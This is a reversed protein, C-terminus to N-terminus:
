PFAVRPRSFSTTDEDARLLFFAVVGAALLGAAGVTLWWFTSSDDDLEGGGDFGVAAAPDRLPLTVAGDAGHVEPDTEPRVDTAVEVRDRGRLVHPTEQSGSTALVIGGPGLLEVYYEVREAEAVTLEVEQGSSVRWPGDGTRASIRTRRALGTTDDAITAYVRVVDPTRERRSIVRPRERARSRVRIFAERIGPPVDAGFVHERDIVALQALSRELAETWGLAHQILSRYVLMRVLEDRGLDDVGEARAFAELARELNGQTYQAVGEDVVPHALAPAASAVVSLVIASTAIRV